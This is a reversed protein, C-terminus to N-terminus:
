TLVKMEECSFRNEVYKKKVKVNQYIDNEGGFLTKNSNELPSMTNKRKDIRDLFRPGRLCSPRFGVGTNKKKRNAESNDLRCGKGPLDSSVVKIKALSSIETGRNNLVDEKRSASMM